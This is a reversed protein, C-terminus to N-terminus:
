SEGVLACTISTSIVAGLFGRYGKRWPSLNYKGVRQKVFSTGCLIPCGEDNLAPPFPPGGTGQDLLHNAIAAALHTKGTGLNGSFVLNSGNATIEPFKHTFGRATALAHAQESTVVDYNDFTAKAFRAPIARAKRNEAIRSQLQKREREREREQWQAERERECEPCKSFIALAGYGIAQAIYKGHAECAKESEVPHISGNAPVARHMTNAM